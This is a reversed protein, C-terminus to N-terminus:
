HAMGLRRQDWDWGNEGMLRIAMEAPMHDKLGYIYRRGLGAMMDQFPQAGWGIRKSVSKQEAFTVSAKKSVETVSGQSLETAGTSRGLNGTIWDILNVTGNLDGVKRDELYLKVAQEYTLSQPRVRGLTFEALLRKAETRAESLTLVGYRGITILTNDRKLVFTKTGGQSVRVGFSKLGADWYSSQGKPPAKISRLSADSLAISAM